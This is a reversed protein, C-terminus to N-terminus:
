NWEGYIIPTGQVVQRAGVSVSDMRGLGHDLCLASQELQGPLSVTGVIASIAPSQSAGFASLNDHLSSMAGARNIEFLEASLSVPRLQRTPKTEWKACSENELKARSFQLTAM